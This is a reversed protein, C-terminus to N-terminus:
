LHSPGQSSLERQRPGGKDGVGTGPLQMIDGRAPEQPLIKRLSETLGTHDAEAEREHSRARETRWSM